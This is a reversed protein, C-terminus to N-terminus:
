HTMYMINGDRHATLAKDTRSAKKQTIVLTEDHRHAFIYHFFSCKTNLVNRINDPLDPLVIYLYTIFEPSGQTHCNSHPNGDTHTHYSHPSLSSDGHTQRNYYVPHGL